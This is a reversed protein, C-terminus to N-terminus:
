DLKLLEQFIESNDASAGEEYKKLLADLDDNTDMLSKGNSENECVTESLKAQLSDDCESASQSPHSEQNEMFENPIQVMMLNDRPQKATVDNTEPTEQSKASTEVNNTVTMTGDGDSVGSENISTVASIVLFNEPTGNTAAKERMLAMPNIFTKKKLVKESGKDKDGYALDLKEKKINVVPVDEQGALLDEDEAEAEDREEVIDGYGVDKKELKIKMALGLPKKFVSKPGIRPKPKVVGMALPNLVHVASVQAGKEAKINIKWVNKLPTQSTVVSPGQESKEKKINRIIEARSIPSTSNQSQQVTPADSKEKKIRISPVTNEQIQEQLNVEPELANGSPGDDDSDSDNGFNDYTIDGEYNDDDPPPGLMVETKVIPVTSMKRPPPAKKKPAAKVTQAKAKSGEVKVPHLAAEPAKFRGECFVYHKFM